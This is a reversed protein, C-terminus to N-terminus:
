HECSYSNTAAEKIADGDVKFLSFACGGQWRILLYEESSPAVVLAYASSVEHGGGGVVSGSGKRVVFGDSYRIQVSKDDASVVTVGDPEVPKIAVKFRDESKFVFAPHFNKPARLVKGREIRFAGEPAVVYQGEVQMMGPKAPQATPRAFALLLAILAAM